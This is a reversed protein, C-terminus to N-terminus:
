PLKLPHILSWLLGWFLRSCLNGTIYHSNRVHVSACSSVTSTKIPSYVEKWTKSLRSSWRTMLRGRLSLTNAVTRGWLIRKSSMERWFTLALMSNISQRRGTPIALNVWDNRESSPCNQLHIAMKVLSGYKTTGQSTGHRHYSQRRLLFCTRLTFTNTAENERQRM